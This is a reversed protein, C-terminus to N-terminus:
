NTNRVVYNDVWPCGCDRVEWFLRHSTPVCLSIVPIFRVLSLHDGKLNQWALVGLHSFLFRFLDLADARKKREM